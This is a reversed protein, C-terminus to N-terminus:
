INIRKGRVCSKHVNKTKIFLIPLIKTFYIFINNVNQMRQRTAMTKRRFIIFYCKIIRSMIITYYTYQFIIKFPVFM